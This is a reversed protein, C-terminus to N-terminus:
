IIHPKIEIDNHQLDSAVEVWDSAKNLAEKKSNAKIICEYTIIQHSTDILKYTKM